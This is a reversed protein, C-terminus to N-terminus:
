DEEEKEEDRREGEREEGEQKEEEKKNKKKRQKKKSSYMPHLAQLSVSYTQQGCRQHSYCGRGGVVDFGDLL